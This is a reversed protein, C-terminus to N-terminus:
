DWKLAPDKIEVRISETAYSELNQMAHPGEPGVRLARYGSIAPSTVPNRPVLRGRVDSAYEEVVRRGVREQVVVSPWRHTHVAEKQGAPISELLVRVYQDELLVRHSASAAIPADLSESWKWPAQAFAHAGAGVALGVALLTADRLIAM